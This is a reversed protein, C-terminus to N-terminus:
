LLARQCGGEKLTIWLVYGGQPNSCETGAPFSDLVVRRLRGMRESARRKLLRLHRDYHGGSLFRLGMRQVPLSVGMSSMMKLRCLKDQWRGAAVWGLRLGPAVSKSLSSCHIVSGNLDYKKCSPPRGESFSIDGYIDDELLPIGKRDLFEVMRRKSEEPMVSGTPNHHNAISLVLKVPEHSVVYELVDLNMGKEPDGPIERIRLGYEQLLHLYNFYFPSELAVIDGPQTLARIALSIAAMAGETVLIDGATLGIGADLSRRAIERRLEEDGEPPPYSFLDMERQEERSLILEGSYPLSALDFTACGFPAYRFDLIDEIIKRYDFLLWEDGGKKRPFSEGEPPAAPELEEQVYYGSQPVGRILREYELLGYAERVTNISVGLRSSLSRISPLKEGSRYARTQILYRLNDAVERYLSDGKKEYHHVPAM